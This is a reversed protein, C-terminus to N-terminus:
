SILQYISRGVLWIGLVLCVDIIMQDQHTNLWGRVQTLRADARGTAFMAYLELYLYISTALLCYLVLVLSSGADTLKAQAIIAAGAAVLTWPQLFAGLGAASLLSLQNVRSAWAAPKRPQGARRRTRLAIVILILGAALRVALAADSPATRPKPPNNETAVFVVAIVLVLCTLWGIIFALGKRTGNEASLVLVYATLPLPELAIGLGVLLLDLVM